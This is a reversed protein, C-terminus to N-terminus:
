QKKSNIKNVIGMLAKNDKQMAEVVQALDKIDRFHIKSLFFVFADYDTQVEMVNDEEITCFFNFEEHIDSLASITQRVANKLNKKNGGLNPLSQKLDNALKLRLTEGIILIQTLLHAKGEAFTNESITIHSTNELKMKSILGRVQAPSSCLTANGMDPYFCNDHSNYFMGQENVILHAEKAKANGILQKNAANKLKM